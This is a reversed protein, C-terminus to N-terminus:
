FPLIRDSFHQSGNWTPATPHLASSGRLVCTHISGLRLVIWSNFLGSCSDAAPLECIWYEGGGGGCQARKTLGANARCTGAAGLNARLAKWPQSAHPERKTSRAPGSTDPTPCFWQVGIVGGPVMSASTAKTKSTSSSALLSKEWEIAPNNESNPVISHWRATVHEGV